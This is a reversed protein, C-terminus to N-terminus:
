VTSVGSKAKIKCATGGRVNQIESKPNCDENEMRSGAISNRWYELIGISWLTKATQGLM